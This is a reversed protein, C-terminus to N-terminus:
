HTDAAATRHQLGTVALAAVVYALAGVIMASRFGFAVALAMTGVSGIVSLVGNLGWYFPAEPLGGRGVRALGNPFPIGMAFGLPAIMLVALAIRVVLGLPLLAPVLQPLAFAYVVGLVAVVLCMRRADFRASFNSGVGGAALLTFLLISLTFIPHGLLLTLHQLLSLEVTIFGLGLAAFYVLSAAYPGAAAGRPKGLLALLLCLLAIPVVLRMVARAMAPPMGFPKYMAFYFPRDDNVPGVLLPAAAEYQAMTKRGLLLEDYPPEYRRGPVVVPQAEPWSMVADLEAESFPRARMM